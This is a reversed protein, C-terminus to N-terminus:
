AKGEKTAKAAAKGCKNCMRKSYHNLTFESLQWATMKTTAAIQAGCSECQIPHLGKIFEQEFEVFDLNMVPPLFSIRGGAEFLPTSQTYIVRREITGNDTEEFRKDIYMILDAMGNVVKRAGEPLTSSVSTYPLGVKPKIEKERSHSLMWLGPRQLSLATLERLFESNITDYGKGYSADSQHMIGLTKNGWDVCFKYLNDITDVIIRTFDHNGQKLEKCTEKFAEWNDIPIQFADQGTLGAETALFLAKGSKGNAFTTKGIKPPGYILFSLDNIDTKAPTIVTPLKM